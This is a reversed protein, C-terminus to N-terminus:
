NKRLHSILLHLFGFKYHDRVLHRDIELHKIWEHFIPNSVIHLSASNDCLFPIPKPISIHLDQLLTSIWLLECATSRMARYEAEVTLVLFQVKNRQKKLLNLLDRSFTTDRLLGGAIQALLRTLMVTHKLVSTRTPPFFLGKQSTGKLYKVLHVLQM